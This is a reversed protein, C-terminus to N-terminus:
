YKDIKPLLEILRSIDKISQAIINIVGHEKQIFGEILLLKSLLIEKHFKNYINKWCIINITGTEDELSLFVVGNATAPKQRLTVIGAVRVHSNKNLKQLDYASQVPMSPFDKM